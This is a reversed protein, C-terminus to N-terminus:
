YGKACFATWHDCAPCRGSSRGRCGEPMCDKCVTYGCSECEAWSASMGTDIKRGCSDCKEKKPQSMSERETKLSREKEEYRQFCGPAYRIFSVAGAGVADRKASLLITQIHGNHDAGANLIVARVNERAQIKQIITRVMHESRLEEAPHNGPAFTGQQCDDQIRRSLEPSDVGVVEIGPCALMASTFLHRGGFHRNPIPIMLDRLSIRDGACGEVGILTIGAIRILTRAIAINNEILADSPHHEDFLFVTPSDVQLAIGTVTAQHGAALVQQVTTFTDQNM